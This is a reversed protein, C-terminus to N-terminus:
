AQGAQREQVTLDVGAFVEALPMDLGLSDLRLSASADRLVVSRWVEGDATAVEAEPRDQAILVYHKLSPITGYAWRNAGRATGPSLIEVIAVPDSAGKDTDRREGRAVIVDPYM